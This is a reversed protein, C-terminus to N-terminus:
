EFAQWFSKELEGYELDAGVERIDLRREGIEDWQGVQQYFFVRGVRAEERLDEIKAALDRAELFEM